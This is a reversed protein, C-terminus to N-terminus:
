YELSNVIQILSQIEFHTYGDTVSKNAHGIIRQLKLDNVEQERMQSIFTHRTDHLTHNIDSKRMIAGLPKYGLRGGKTNSFLHPKGNNIYREWIHAVRHHIPIVRNKGTETKIGGILYGDHIDERNVILLEGVRMGSYLLILLIDVLQDGERKWLEKIEDKTFNVRPVEKTQEVYPVDDLQVIKAYNKTINLDKKLGWEILKNYLGKIVKRNAMTHGEMSEMIHPARVDSLKMKHYKSIRKFALQYRNMVSSSVTPFFPESWREFAQAVTIENSSLDYPNAHYNALAIEADKRTPFYGLTKYLQKGDEWGDTVRVRFPNRRKATGKKPKKGNINHISGYGNPKRM